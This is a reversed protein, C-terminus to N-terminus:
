LIANFVYGCLSTTFETAKLGVSGSVNIVVLSSKVNFTQREFFRMSCNFRSAVIPVDRSHHVHIYGYDVPIIVNQHSQKLNYTIQKRTILIM